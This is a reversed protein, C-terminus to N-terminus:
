GYVFYEPRGGPQKVLECVRERFSGDYECTKGGFFRVHAYGLSKLRAEVLEARVWTTWEGDYARYDIVVELDRYRARTECVCRIEHSYRGEIEIEPHWSRPERVGRWVGSGDL